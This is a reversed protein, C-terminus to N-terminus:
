RIPQVRLNASFEPPVKQFRSSEPNFQARLWLLQDTVASVIVIVVVVVVVVIPL